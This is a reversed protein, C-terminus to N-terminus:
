AATLPADVPRGEAAIVAETWSWQPAALVAALDAPIPAVVSQARGCPDNFCLLRAHLLLRHSQLYQRFLRNHEGKGYRSDGILPHSISKLHRRIQHRRGQHPCAEILAYRSLPFHQSPWPFEAQALSRWDTRADQRRGREDELAHDIVGSEGPWGRVVALYRKEVERNLFQGALTAVTQADFALLLVGSTAADLRHVAHVTRGFQRAAIQVATNRFQGSYHSPHIVLGSPKNVAVWHESRALVPLEAIVPDSRNAPDAVASM